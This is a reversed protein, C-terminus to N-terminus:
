EGSIYTVPLRAGARVGDHPDTHGAMVLQFIKDGLRTGGLGGQERPRLWHEEASLADHAQVHRLYTADPEILEGVATLRAYGAWGAHAVESLGAACAPCGKPNRLRFASLEFGQGQLLRPLDEESKCPLACISCLRPILSQKLLMRILGQRALLAPEIGMSILRFPIENASSTHITTYCVHGASVFQFVQRAGYAERMETIVGVDPNVRTFHMLAQRYSEDRSEGGGASSIPIQVIAPHDVRMEVPDEVTVVKIKGDRDHILREVLRLLTTSKGEGTSGAVIMAGDRADRMRALADMIEADFGLDDLSSTDKTGADYFFRFILHDGVGSTVEHFGRQGRLKVVGQPLPFSRTSTVSFSQFRTEIKTAHGSGQDRAHFLIELAMRGEERTWPQGTSHWAGGVKFRIDTRHDRQVIELDSARAVAADKILRLVRARMDEESTPADKTGEVTVRTDYAAAIVELDVVEESAIAPLKGSEILRQREFRISDLHAYGDAFLCHGDERVACVERFSESGVDFFGTGLLPATPTSPTRTKKSFDLLM